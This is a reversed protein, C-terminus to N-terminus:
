CPNLPLIILSSFLLQKLKSHHLVSDFQNMSCYYLLARSFFFLSRYQLLVLQTVRIMRACYKSHYNSSYFQYCNHFHCFYYSDFALKSMCKSCLAFITPPFLYRALIILYIFLNCKYKEFSFVQIQLKIYIHTYSIYIDVM